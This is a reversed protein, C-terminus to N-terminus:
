ANPEDVPLFLRGIGPATMFYRPHAPDPELKRRISAMYVRLYGTKRSGKPGWVQDLIDGQSVVRGPHRVLLEVMGWEKATLRVESGDPRFCPMASLDIRFDPTRVPAPDNHRTARRLVARLRALLEDVGFPEALCDDAGADLLAARQREGDSGDIASVVIIPMPMCVRLNQVVNVAAPGCPDVLVADVAHDRLRSIARGVSGTMEVRYGSKRLAAVTVRRSQKDPDAVLIAM